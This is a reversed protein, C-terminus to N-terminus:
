RNNKRSVKATKGERGGYPYKSAAEEVNKSVSMSEIALLYGYEVGHQYDEAAKYKENNIDVKCVKNAYEKSAAKVKEYLEEPIM